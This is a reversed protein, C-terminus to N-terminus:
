ATRNIINQPATSAITRGHRGYPAYRTGAAQQIFTYTSRVMRLGEELLIRNSTSIKSLESVKTKLTEQLTSMRGRWQLPMKELLMGLKIPERTIGFSRALETCCAIRESELKEIRTVTTDQVARQRDIGALDQERLARNFEQASDLFENHVTLESTLVQELKELENEM